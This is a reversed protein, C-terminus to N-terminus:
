LFILQDLAVQRFAGRGVFRYLQLAPRRVPHPHFDATIEYHDKV